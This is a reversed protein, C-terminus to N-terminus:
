GGREDPPWRRLDCGLIKSLTMADTVAAAATDNNFYVFVDRALENLRLIRDRLSALERDPYSGAYLSKYGHFRVYALDPSTVIDDTTVGPYDHICFAMNHRRLTAFTEPAFWSPHRFEVAYRYMHPLNTLFAELHRDDRELYSPFQCLLQALKQKPFCAIREFYNAIFLDLNPSLTKRHTILRSLKATFLFNSPVQASWKEIQKFTPLRYTTANLEVTEFRRSYFSLWSPRAVGKPYFRVRWDGYTWGSTGIRIM